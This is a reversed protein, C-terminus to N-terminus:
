SKQMYFTHSIGGSCFQLPFPRMNTTLSTSFLQKIKSIPLGEKERYSIQINRPIDVDREHPFVNEHLIICLAKPIVGEPEESSNTTIIITTLMAWHKVWQLAESGLSTLGPLSLRPPARSTLFVVKFAM